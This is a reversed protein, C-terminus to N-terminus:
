FNCKILFKKTAIDWNNSNRINILNNRIESWISDNNFLELTFNAFDKENKAILGTKGHVIRESLAGIGLTVIPVCLEKAEEAAICYLEAVHGPILFVRTNLIEYLLNARDSLKRNFINFEKRNKPAPTTYLKLKDNQTFIYKTWISVLKDLNRDPYSTFLAKMHDINNTLKSNIFDDDVAWNIIEHGFIRTFYNRKSKHYKGLLFIKPKYKLYSFLQNKRIFKEITQVSHSIAVKKTSKIYKFNNLDNNTIALDYNTNENYNHINISRINEFNVNINTNNLLTIKHGLRNLRLILNIVSREAGRIDNDNLSNHNYPISSNDLFCINM